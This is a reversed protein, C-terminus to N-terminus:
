HEADDEYYDRWDSEGDIDDDESVVAAWLESTRKVVRKTVKNGDKDKRTVDEYVLDGNEDRVRVTVAKLDFQANPLDNRKKLARIATTAGSANRFEGIKYLTNYKGRGERVGALLENLAEVWLSTHGGHDREELEDASLGNSFDIPTVAM